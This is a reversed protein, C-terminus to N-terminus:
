FVVLLAIVVAFINTIKYGFILLYQYDANESDFFILVFLFAVMKPQENFFFYFDRHLTVPWGWVWGCPPLPPTNIPKM